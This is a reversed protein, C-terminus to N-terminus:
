RRRTTPLAEAFEVLGAGRAADTVFAPPPDLPNAHDRLNAGGVSSPFRAFIPADTPSDGIFAVRLRTSRDPRLFARHGVSFDGDGAKPAM